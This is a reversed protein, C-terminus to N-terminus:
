IRGFKTSDLKPDNRVVRIINVLKERCKLSRHSYSIRKMDFSTSSAM